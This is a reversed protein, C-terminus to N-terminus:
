WIAYRLGVRLEHHEISDLDLDSGNIGAGDDSGVTTSTFYSYKYGFDLKVNDTVDYAAGVMLNAVLGFSSDNTYFGAGTAHTGVGGGAGCDTAVTGVCTSDWSVGNSSIYTFGGGLGVYPTFAGIQTFDKFVSATVATAIVDGDLETSCNGTIHTSVGGVLESGCGSSNRGSFELGNYHSLGIEYRVGSGAEFGAAVNVSITDGLDVDGGVANVEGTVETVTGGIDGRLYWGTGFEVLTEGEGDLMDAASATSPILAQSAGMFIATAASLSVWNKFFNTM